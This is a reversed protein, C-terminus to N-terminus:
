LWNVITIVSSVYNPSVKCVFQNIIYCGEGKQCETVWVFEAGETSQNNM